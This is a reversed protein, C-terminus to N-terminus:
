ITLCKTLPEVESVALIDGSFGALCALDTLFFYTTAEITNRCAITYEIRYCNMDSSVTHVDFLLSELAVTTASFYDTLFSM